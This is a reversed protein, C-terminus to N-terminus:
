WNRGIIEKSSYGTMTFFGSSAYVIPCDPKTADSVVFTQQLTALADKLEQSVRLVGSSSESGFNSDGSTRTSEAFRDSLNRTRDGDFSSSTKFNGPNVVLGWEATREAITAETLDQQYFSSKDSLHNMLYNDETTSKDNVASNSDVASDPDRAFAMWKNASEKGTPSNSSAIASAGDFRVAKTDDEERRFRQQGVNQSERLEFIPFSDVQDSSGDSDHKTSVKLKEM